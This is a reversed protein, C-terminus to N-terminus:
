LSLIQNQNKYCIRNNVEFNAVIDAFDSQQYLIYYYFSESSRRCLHLNCPSIVNYDM